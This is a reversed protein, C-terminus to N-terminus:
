SRFLHHHHRDQAINLKANHIGSIKYTLLLLTAKTKLIEYLSVFIYYTTTNCTNVGYSSLVLM